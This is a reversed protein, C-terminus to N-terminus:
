FAEGGSAQAADSDTSGSEDEPEAATRTGSAVAERLAKAEALLDATGVVSPVGDIEWNFYEEGAKSTETVTKMTYIHSFLPPNFPGKPGEMRINRARSMLNKYKKMSTRAFSIVVPRNIGDEGVILCYLYVTDIIENGNALIDRGKENPTTQSLINSAMPHREVFGGGSDRPVWEVYYRERYVPIINVADFFSGEVTDFLQGQELGDIFKGNTKKLQPSNSQAISLYPIAYDDATTNEFGEGSDELFEEMMEAPLNEAKEALAKSEKSM